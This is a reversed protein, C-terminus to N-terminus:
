GPLIMPSSFPRRPHGDLKLGHLDFCGFVEASLHGVFRDLLLRSRLVRRNLGAKACSRAGLAQIRSREALLLASPMATGRCAAVDVEEQALGSVCAARAAAAAAEFRAKAARFAEGEQRSRKRRDEIWRLGVRGARLPLAPGM